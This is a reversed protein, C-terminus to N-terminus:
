SSTTSFAHVTGPYDVDTPTRTDQARLWQELMMLIWVFEGYFGPAERMRKRLLDHVISSRVIGRKATGHLADEAMERLGPHRLVWAGFPLGFGHKKKRLIEVPLFNRLAQKFFWRLAFGKVKWDPPVHLSFDALERSLFPYGVSMNALQTAARVKPLDSDGLTFTWDYELMRNILSGATSQAWTARQLAIPAAEDLGALFDPDLVTEIGIFHLLNFANLRDPM